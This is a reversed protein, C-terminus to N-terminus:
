PQATRPKLKEALWAKQAKEETPAGCHICLKATAGIKEGCVGCDVKGADKRQSLDSRHWSFSQEFYEAAAHSLRNARARAADPGGEAEIAVLQEIEVRYTAELRARAAALEKELPPNHKSWFMGLRCLNGGQHITSPDDFDQDFGPNLPCLIKMAERYGNTWTSVRNFNQDERFEEFPHTIKGVMLYEKNRPCARFLMRPHNPPMSIQFEQPAINYFYVDDLHAPRLDDPNMSMISPIPGSLNKEDSMVKSASPDPVIHATAM